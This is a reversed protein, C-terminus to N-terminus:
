RVSPLPNVNQHRRVTAKIGCLNPTRCRRVSKLTRTVNRREYMRDYNSEASALETKANKLAKKANAVALDLGPKAAALQAEHEKIKVNLPTPDPERNEVITVIWEGDPIYISEDGVTAVEGGFQEALADKAQAIGSEREAILTALEECRAVM